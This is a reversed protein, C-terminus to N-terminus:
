QAISPLPFADKVTVKNLERYDICWQVTGDKKRVLVPPSAWESTSKQIVGAELMKELNKEEEAEFGIRTRRMLQRVPRMEHTKIKYKIDTFCGIDSDYSVCQRVNSKMWILVHSKGYIKLINLCRKM